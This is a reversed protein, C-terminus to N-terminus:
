RVVIWGSDERRLSKTIRPLTREVPNGRPDTWRDTRDFSVTANNGDVRISANTCSLTLNQMVSLAEGLREAEAGTKLHGLALLKGTDKREFAGCYTSIWDRLESEAGRSAVVPAPTPKPKNVTLTWSKDISAGWPASAKVTVTYAGPNTTRLRYRSSSAGAAREGNVSWEWRIGDVDAPRVPAEFDVQSGVERELRLFGPTTGAFALQPAEVEVQWTALTETRGGSRAALAVRRSGPEASAERSFVFSAGRGAERDNVRWVLDSDDGGRVAATFRQEGGLPIRLSRSEPKASALALVPLATPAITPQAVIVPAETPVVPVATPVVVVPVATPPVATPRPAITPAVTPRSVITPATTPRPAVTPEERPAATAKAVDFPTPEARSGEFLTPVAFYLGAAAAAVVAVGGAVIPARSPPVSAAKAIDARLMEIAHELTEIAPTAQTEEGSSIAAGASALIKEANRHQRRLRRTTPTLSALEASARQLKQGMARLREAREEATIADVLATFREAAADFAKAAAAWERKAFLDAGRTLQEQGQRAREDKQVRDGLARVRAATQEAKTKAEDALREARETALTERAAAALGALREPLPELARIAEALRGADADKAAADFVGFLSRAEKSSTFREGLTRLEKVAGEAAGRLETARRRLRDAELSRAREFHNAAKGYAEAAAAPDDSKGARTWADRGLRFEEKGGESNEVEEAAHRAQEAATKARALAEEATRARALDAALAEVGNQVRSLAEIAESIRGEARDREAAALLEELSELTPALKSNEAAAAIERLRASLKAAQDDAIRELHAARAGSAADLAARAAALAPA